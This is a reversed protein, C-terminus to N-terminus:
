LRNIMAAFVLGMNGVLTQRYIGSSHLIHLRKLLSVKRIDIFKSFIDQNEPTMYPYLKVLAKVHKENYSKFQGKLLRYISKSKNLLGTKYGILNNDHQRYRVSPQPDFEIQGGCATVVIYLWWDHSTVDVIGGALLLLKKAAHNFVMTNGNAINQVLAHAFGPKKKLKVSCGMAEGQSNILCTRSCYIAPVEESVTKLWKIAASIKNPEWIDDQDSFAYYDADIHPDCALFLFNKAFGQSPGKRLHVQHQAHKAQFQKLIIDTATDSGDDSVYLRWNHHTQWEFSALQESLFSAGHYTGLLIAISTESELLADM